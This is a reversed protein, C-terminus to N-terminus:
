RDPRLWESSEHTQKLISHIALTNLVIYRAQNLMAAYLPSAIILRDRCKFLFNQLYNGRIIKILRWDDMSGVLVFWDFSGESCNPAFDLCHRAFAAVIKPETHVDTSLWSSHGKRQRNQQKDRNV